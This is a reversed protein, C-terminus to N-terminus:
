LFFCAVEFVPTVCRVCLMAGLFLELQSFLSSRESFFFVLRSFSRTMNKEFRGLTTALFVDANLLVTGYAPWHTVRASLDPVSLQGDGATM